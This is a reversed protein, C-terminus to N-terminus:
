QGSRQAQLAKYENKADEADNKNTLIKNSSTQEPSHPVEPTTTCASLMLLSLLLFSLRM